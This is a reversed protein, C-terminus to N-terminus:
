VGVALRDGGKVRGGHQQQAIRGLGAAAARQLHQHRAAGVLGAEHGAGVHEGAAADVREIRLRVGGGRAAGRLAVLLEGLGDCGDTLAEFLQAHQQRAVRVAAPGIGVVDGCEVAVGGEGRLALRAAQLQRGVAHEGQRAPDGVAVQGLAEVHGKEHRAHRFALRGHGVLGLLELGLPHAGLLRQIAVRSAAHETQWLALPSKRTAIRLTTM